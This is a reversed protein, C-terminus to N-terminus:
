LKEMIEKCRAKLMYSENDHQKGADESETMDKYDASGALCRADYIISAITVINLLIPLGILVISFALLMIFYKQYNCKELEPYKCEYCGYIIIMTIWTVPGLAWLGTISELM